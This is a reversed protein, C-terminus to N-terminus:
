KNLHAHFTVARPAAEANQKAEAQGVISLGFIKM